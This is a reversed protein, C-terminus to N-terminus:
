LWVREVAGHASPDFHAPWHTTELDFLAGTLKAGTLDARTLDVGDLCTSRLDAGVLNAGRLDAGALCAFRLNAHQLNAGRLGASHLDTMTLVAGHLDAGAGHFRAVWYPRLLFTVGVLLSCLGLM